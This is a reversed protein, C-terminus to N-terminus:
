PLAQPHIRTTPYLPAVSNKLSQGLPGLTLAYGSAAFCSSSKRTLNLNRKLLHYSFTSAYSYQVYFSVLRELPMNQASQYLFLLQMVDFEDVIDM